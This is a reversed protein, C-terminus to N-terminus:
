LNDAQDKSEAFLGYLTWIFTRTKLFADKNPPNKKVLDTLNGIETLEMLKIIWDGATTQLQSNEM